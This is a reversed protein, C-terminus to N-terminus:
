LAMFAAVGAVVAGFSIVNRGAANFAPTSTPSATATATSTPAVYPTSKLTSSSVPAVGVRSSSATPAATTEPCITTTVEWSSIVTSSAAAATSSAEDEPCYTTTVDDIVTVITLKSSSSAAATTQSTQSTQSTIVASSSTTSGEAKSLGFQTSWQYAGHNAGSDEVVILLGYHTVDPTLDTSPTWVFEGSNPISEALTEIPVVNTSPGRLLVISVTNGLDHDWKITYPKGEPVQEDLSPSRIANGEPSKTYDPTTYAAALAAFASVLAAASFRM